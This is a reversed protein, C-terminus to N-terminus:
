DELFDDEEEDNQLIGESGPANPLEKKKQEDTPEVENVSKDQVEQKSDEQKTEEQISEEQTEAPEEAASAKYEELEIKQKILDLYEQVEKIRNKDLGPQELYKKFYSEATKLREIEALGEPKQEYYLLALNLYIDTDEPNLELAKLYSKKAESFMKNAMYANGVHLYNRYNDPQTQVLRELISLAKAAQGRKLLLLGYSEMAEETPHFKVALAYSDLADHLLDLEKETHGMALHLGGHSPAIELANKLVWKAAAWKKQELFIRAMVYLAEVNEADRELVLRAFKEAGSYDKLYFALYAAAAKVFPADPFENTYRDVMQHAPDVEGLKAQVLVINLFCHPEDHKVALCAAYRNQAEKLNGMSELALGANYYAPVMSVDVQSARDFKDLAAQNDVYLLEAGEKFLQEAYQNDHSSPRLSGQKSACGSIMLLATSMVMVILQSHAFLQM